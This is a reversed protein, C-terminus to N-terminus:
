WVSYTLCSYRRARFIARSVSLASFKWEISLAFGFTFFIRFLNVITEIHRMGPRSKGAACPGTHLGCRLKLRRDPLHRVRFSTTVASLLDLSMTAIESAHREGNPEPLGSVVM